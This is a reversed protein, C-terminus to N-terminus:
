SQVPCSHARASCRSCNYLQHFNNFTTPKYQKIEIQKLQLAPRQITVNGWTDRFINSRSAECVQTLINWLNSKPIEPAYIYITKLFEASDAAENRFVIFKNVIDFLTEESFSSFGNKTIDQWSQLGDTLHLTTEKTNRNIEFTDLYFTSIQKKTHIENHRYSFYIKVIVTNQTNSDLQKYIKEDKDTFTVDGENVVIGWHISSIDNTSLKSFNASRIKDSIFAIEKGGILIQVELGIM